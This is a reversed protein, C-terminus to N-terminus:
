SKVWRLLLNHTLEIRKVYAKILHAAEREDLSTAVSLEFTGHLNSRLAPPHASAIAACQFYRVHFLNLGASATSFFSGAELEGDQKSCRYKLQM